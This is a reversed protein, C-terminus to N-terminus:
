CRRASTAPSRRGGGPDERRLVVLHRRLARPRVPRGHRAGGHDGRRPTEADFRHSYFIDVYDLGMRACRSTSRPSSTSGRAAARATPGRGCTTAPRPRSSWSTATPSSTTPWTAGSTRRPAATPRATTTPSTSTPSAGTSPGACSRASPRRPGTPASTRGCARALARAAQAREARHAPLAHRDLRRVQRVSSRLGHGWGAAQAESRAREPSVGTRVPTMGSPPRRWRPRRSSAHSGRQTARGELQRDRGRRAAHGRLMRKGSCRSPTSGTGRSSSLRARPSTTRRARSSPVRTQSTVPYSTARATSASESANALSTRWRIPRWSRAGASRIPPRPMVSGGSWSRSRRTSVGYKVRRRSASRCASMSRTTASARSSMAACPGSTSRTSRNPKATGNPTM